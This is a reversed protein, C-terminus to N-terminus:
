RTGLLSAADDYNVLGLRGGLGDPPDYSRFGLLWQVREPMTQAADLPVTLQHNEEARLWACCFGAHLGVRWEDATSNAGGGHIVKGSYLLASGAPMVAQCTSGPPVDPLVGEWHNSGPAIVTAGNEETFDTLAFIATVTIETDRRAHPWNLEDRHLMQPSEGPGIAILQGTNLWYDGAGLYRDAMAGYRPDCLVECWAPSQAALGTVRKTRDGHFDTWFGDTASGAHHHEILPAVEANLRALLDPALFRQVIVGGDREFAAWVHDWDADAADFHRLEPM